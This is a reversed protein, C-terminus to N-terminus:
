PWCFPERNSSIAEKALDTPPHGALMATPVALSPRREANSVRTPSSCIPRKMRSCSRRSPTDTSPSLVSGSLSVASTSSETSLSPTEGM